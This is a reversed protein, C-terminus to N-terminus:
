SGVVMLSKEKESKFINQDPVEGSVFPVTFPPFATQLAASVAGHFPPRYLQQQCLRMNSCEGQLSLVWPKIM